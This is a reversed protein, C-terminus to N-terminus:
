MSEVPREGTGSIEAEETSAKIPTLKSVIAFAKKVAYRAVLKKVYEVSPFSIANCPCLNQCTNCGVLCNYPRAVVPRGKKTDWDFVRRGCSVFCLGCGACRDYNITPYWEIEKRDVGWWPIVSLDKIERGLADKGIVPPEQTSM